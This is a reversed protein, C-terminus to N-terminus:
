VPSGQGDAAGNEHEPSAELLCGLLVGDNGEIM